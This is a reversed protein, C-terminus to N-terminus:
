DKKLTQKLVKKLVEDIKDKTLEEKNNLVEILQSKINETYLEIVTEFQKNTMKEM